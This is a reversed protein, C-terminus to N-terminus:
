VFLGPRLGAGTRCGSAATNQSISKTSCGSLGDNKHPFRDHGVKVEECFFLSKSGKSFWGLRRLEDIPDIRRGTHQVAAPRHLRGDFPHIRHIRRQHHRVLIVEDAQHIRIFEPVDDILTQAPPHVVDALRAVGCRMRPSFDCLILGRQAQFIQKDEQIKDGVAVTSPILFPREVTRQQLLSGQGSHRCCTRLCLQLAARRSSSVARRASCCCVYTGLGKSM